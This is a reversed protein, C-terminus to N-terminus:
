EGPCIGSLITSPGQEYAAIFESASGMLSFDEAITSPIVFKAGFSRFM